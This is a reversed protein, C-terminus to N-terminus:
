GLHHVPVLVNWLVVRCLIEVRQHPRKRTRVWEGFRGQFAGCVGEQVTRRMYRLRHARGDARQRQVMRKWAPQGLAKATAHYKLTQM